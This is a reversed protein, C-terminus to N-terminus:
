FKRCWFLMLSKIEDRSMATSTEVVVRRAGDVLSCPIGRQTKGGRQVKSRVLFGFSSARAATKFLRYTLDVSLASLFVLFIAIFFTFFEERDENATLASAVSTERKNTKLSSQM